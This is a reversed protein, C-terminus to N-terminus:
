TISAFRIRDRITTRVFDQGLHGDQIIPLVIEFVRHRPDLFRLKWVTEDHIPSKVSFFRVGAHLEEAVEIALNEITEKM